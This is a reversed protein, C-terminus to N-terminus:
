TETSRRISAWAGRTGQHLAVISVHAFLRQRRMREVSKAALVSSGSVSRVACDLASQAPKNFLCPALLAM